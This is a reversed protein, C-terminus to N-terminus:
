EVGIPWAALVQETRLQRLLILQNSLQKLQVPLVKNLLEIQPTGLVSRQWDALSVAEDDGDFMHTLVDILTKAAPMVQVEYTDIKAKAAASAIAENLGGLQDVLGNEKAQPALFIRGQAVDDIKTIRKGRGDKVRLLFQQYVKDMQGSVLKRQAETFPTMTSLMAANGGRSIETTSIGVKGFLGRLIVKGGVVGISGVISTPEAIIQGGASAIYYGGSAAMHGVSIVVPKKQALGHLSQWIVESALASGGPSDIRVVVAQIGADDAAKDFAKRLTESGSTRGGFLGQESKGSVIMGDIYVLGIRSAAAPAPKVDAALLKFLAFPNSLDLKGAASVGYNNVLAVEGGLQTRLEAMFEARNVVADVLKAERADDALYPGHDILDKVKAPALKRGAAITAVMQDFLGDYLRNIEGLLEPTPETRTFPEEAGKFKGIQVLDAQLGIKDLLGRFFVLSGHLGTLGVEGGQSVAIRDAGAALQYQIADAQEFYVWVPKGAARIKAIAARLELMQSANMEPQDLALVVAHVKADSAASELRGVLTRLSPRDSGGFLSFTPPAEGIPGALRIHAVKRPETQTTPLPGAGLLCIAVLILGARRHIAM